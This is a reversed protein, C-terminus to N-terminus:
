PLGRLPPHPMPFLFAKSEKTWASACSRNEIPHDLAFSVFFDADDQAHRGSCYFTLELVNERMQIYLIASSCSGYYSLKEHASLSSPTKCDRERQTM